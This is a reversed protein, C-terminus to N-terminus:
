RGVKLRIIRNSIIFRAKTLVEALDLEEVPTFGGDPVKHSAHIVLNLLESLSAQM